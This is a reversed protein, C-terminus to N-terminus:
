KKRYICNGSNCNDCVHNHFKVSDGIGMIGSVSKIPSMLSSECLHVNCFNNPFFTFLGQQEQVNWECYGPSYRNTIIIGHKKLSKQVSEHIKDMAKEVIVSGLLDLLYGEILKGTNTHEKARQTIENGATCVFVAAHTMGKLFHVVQEGAFFVKDKLFIKDKQARGEIIILGGEINATDELISMERDLFGKYSQIEGIKALKLLHWISIGLENPSFRYHMLPNLDLLESLQKNM